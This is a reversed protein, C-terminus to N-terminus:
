QTTDFAAIARRADDETMHGVIAFLATAHEGYRPVEDSMLLLLARGMLADIAEDKNYPTIKM